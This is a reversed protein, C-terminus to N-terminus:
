VGTYLGAVICCIMYVMCVCVSVSVWRGGGGRVGLLCARCVGAPNPWCVSVHRSFVPKVCVRVRGSLGAVCLGMALWVCARARPGHHPVTPNQAPWGKEVGVWLDQRKSEGFM